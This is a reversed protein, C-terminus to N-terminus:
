SPTKDEAYLRVYHHPYAWREMEFYAVLLQCMRHEAMYGLETNSFVVAEVVARVFSPHKIMKELELTFWRNWRPGYSSREGGEPWLRPQVGDDCRYRYSAAMIDHADQLVRHDFKNISEATEAILLQANLIADARVFESRAMEFIAVINHSYTEHQAMKLAKNNDSIYAEGIIM